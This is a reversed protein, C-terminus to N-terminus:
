VGYMDLDNLIENKLKEDADRRNKEEIVKQRIEETLRLGFATGNELQVPAVKNVFTLAGTDTIHENEEEILGDAFGYEIAGKASIWTERDMLDLVDELEMGSKAAYANAMTENLTKLMESIKDMQHYDGAVGSCSVNHIMITSVNSMLVKKCGMAAVGAASAAFSQIKAVSDVSQFLSYMEQGSQVDGGGSNIYVELTEGPKMQTIADRIDKPCTADWGLWEYIWKADNPVIDGMLEVKAM